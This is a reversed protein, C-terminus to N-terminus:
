GLVKQNFEIIDDITLGEPLRFGSSSSQQSASKYEREFDQDKIVQILRQPDDINARLSQGHM